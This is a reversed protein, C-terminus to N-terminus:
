GNSAILTITSGRQANKQDDRDTFPDTEYREQVKDSIGRDFAHQAQRSNYRSALKRMEDAVKQGASRNDAYTSAHIKESVIAPEDTWREQNLFTTPNLWQRGIPKAEIYRHLGQMIEELSAKKRAKAFSALAKPKGTKNPYTTWFKESFEKEFIQKQSLETKARVNNVSQNDSLNDSLNNSQVEHMNSQFSTCTPESRYERSGNERSRPAHLNNIDLQIFDSTRYGRQGHRIERIIIGMSEFKSLWNSIARISCECEDALTTQSPFCGGKEDAYNALMLLIAKGTANGVKQKIAWAMAQFSM